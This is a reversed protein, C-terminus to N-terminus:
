KQKQSDVLTPALQRMWNPVSVVQPQAEIRTCISDIELEGESLPYAKPSGIFFLGPHKFSM